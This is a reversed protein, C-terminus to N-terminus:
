GGGLASEVKTSASKTALIDTIAKLSAQKAAATDNSAAAAAIANLDTEVSAASSKLADFDSAAASPPELADLKATAAQWQTALGSFTARVQANSQSPADKLAGAFAVATQKLQGVAPEFGSKFSATQDETTTKSSSSSGGCGSLLGIALAIAVCSIRVGPMEGGSRRLSGIGM